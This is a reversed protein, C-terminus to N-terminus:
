WRDCCFGLHRGQIVYELTQRANQHKHQYYVNRVRFSQYGFREFLNVVEELKLTRNRRARLKDTLVGSSSSAGSSSGAAAADTHPAQLSRGDSYYMLYAERFLEDLYGRYVSEVVESRNM